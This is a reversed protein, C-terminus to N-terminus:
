YSRHGLGQSAMPGKCFSTVVERLTDTANSVQTRTVIIPEVVDQYNFSPPARSRCATSVSRSVNGNAGRSHLDAPTPEAGVKLLSTNTISEGSEDEPPTDQHGGRPTDTRPENSPIIRTVCTIRAQESTTTPSKPLTRSPLRLLPAGMNAEDEPSSTPPHDTHADTMGGLTLPRPSADASATEAAKEM